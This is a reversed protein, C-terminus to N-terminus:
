GSTADEGGVPRTATTTPDDHWASGSPSVHGWRTEHGLPLVCEKSGFTACCLVVREGCESCRAVDIFRRMPARPHKVCAARVSLTGLALSLEYFGSV